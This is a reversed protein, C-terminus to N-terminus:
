LAPGWVYRVDPAREENSAGDTREVAVFGERQYFRLAATNSQFAWLQLSTPREQKALAVLDHGLGRGTWDARLYLHALWDPAGLALFGM